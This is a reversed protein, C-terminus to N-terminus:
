LEEQSTITSLITDDKKDTQSVELKDVDEPDIKEQLGLLTPSLYITSLTEGDMSIKSRETFNKGKIYYDDGIKVIKDIEIDKYGMRMKTQKYPNKGGFVYDKGYLMDYALAKQDSLYSSSKQSNSQQYDFLVGRHSLGADKLLQAGAQYSYLKRDKESLGINDWIVYRTQYLNGDAYDASKVDLAPIHDGYILVITPEGSKRIKSLLDGIFTDMQHTENVYYEYKWKTEENDATVTTYPDKFVQETPYSGHGQVSIIHMFSPNKTKTLIDMIDGTMTKDQAWGTPTLEINNMYEASTFSDFGLNAYVENRNYFLARHDHMAYTSYGSNKLVYAMSELTKERLKGKYPYEGPGFFKASIGTLVEFETNATGAGCAPVEFWGSTYDKMLKTFNPTPDNSVKINHFDQAYAFSEMQLVIINPKTNDTEKKTPTTDTGNKTKKLIKQISSKSYDAPKSIGKNISTNIFCYPFGYDTYAYNLNGFFTSLTGLRILGVTSGMAAAVSILVVVFSRKYNVNDWRYSSIYYLVIIAGGIILAAAGLVIQLKSYYTTLLTLGDGLNQLDYLTFPTMRKILICGNVTGLTGWVIMILLTVFGRKRFLLTLTLTAFIILWNYLFVVPQKWLMMVGNFIGDTARAFTEIYLYMLFSMVALRLIYRKEHLDADHFRPKKKPFKERFKKQIKEKVSILKSLIKGPNKKEKRNKKFMKNKIM